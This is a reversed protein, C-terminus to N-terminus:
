CITLVLSISKPNEERVMEGLQVATLRGQRQWFVQGAAKQGEGAEGFM